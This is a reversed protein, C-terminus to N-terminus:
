CGDVSAPHCGPAVHATYDRLLGIVDQETPEGDAQPQPDPVTHPAGLGPEGYVLRLADRASVIWEAVQQPDSTGLQDLVVRELQRLRKVESDPHLGYGVKSVSM